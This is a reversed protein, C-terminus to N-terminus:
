AWPDGQRLFARGTERELHQRATSILALLRADDAGDGIRLAAKVAEIAVPESAPPAILDLTM